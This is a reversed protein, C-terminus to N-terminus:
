PASLPDPNADFSGQVTVTRGPGPGIGEFSFSGEIRDATVSTITLSGSLSRYTTTEHGDTRLLAHQYEAVFDDPGANAGAIAFTGVGPAASSRRDFRIFDYHGSFSGHLMLIVMGEDRFTAPGGFTLNVEGSVMATFLGSEPGTPSDGGCSALVTAACFVTNVPIVKRM